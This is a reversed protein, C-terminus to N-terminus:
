WLYEIQQIVAGNVWDFAGSKRGFFVDLLQIKHCKNCFSDDIAKNARFCAVLSCSSHPRDKISLLCRVFKKKEIFM